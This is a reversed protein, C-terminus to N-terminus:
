HEYLLGYARQGYRKSSAVFTVGTRVGKSSGDLYTRLLLRRIVDHM